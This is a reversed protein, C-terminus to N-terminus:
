HVRIVCTVIVTERIYVSKLDSYQLV